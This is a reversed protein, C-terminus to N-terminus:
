KRECSGFSIYTTTGLSVVEVFESGDNMMKLITGGQAVALIYIGSVSSTMSYQDCGQKDCRGYSQTSFDLTVWVTPQINKCGKRECYFKVTPSCYWEEAGVSSAGLQSMALVLLLILKNM